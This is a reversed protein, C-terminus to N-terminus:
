LWIYNPESPHLSGKSTPVNHYNEAHAGNPLLMTTIYPSAAGKVSAWDKNEMLIVFVTKIPSAAYVPKVLGSNAGKGTTVGLIIAMVLFALLGAGTAVAKKRITKNIGM